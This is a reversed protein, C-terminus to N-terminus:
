LKKVWYYCANPFAEEESKKMLRTEIQKPQQSTSLNKFM